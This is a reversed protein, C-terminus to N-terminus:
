SLVTKPIGDKKSLLTNPSLLSTTNPPHLFPFVYRYKGVVVNKGTIPDTIDGCPYVVDLVKHTILRTLKEPLSQILVM